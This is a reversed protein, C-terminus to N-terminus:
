YTFSDVVGGATGGIASGAAFYSALVPLSAGTPALALAGLGVALSGISKGLGGSGGGQSAFRNPNAYSDTDYKMPPVMTRPIVDALPIDYPADALPAFQPPLPLKNYLNTKDKYVANSIREVVNEFAPLQDEMMKNLTATDADFQEKSIGLMTAIEAKDNRLQNRQNILKRGQEQIQKGRNKLQKGKKKIQLATNRAAEQNNNLIDISNNVKRKNQVASDRNNAITDLQYNLNEREKGSIRKDSRYKTKAGFVANKFSDNTRELSDVIAGQDISALTEATRIVGEASKGRRGSAAASGTARQTALTSKLLSVRSEAAARSMQNSQETLGVKFDRARQKERINLINRNNKVVESEIDLNSIQNQIIDRERRLSNRQKDFNDIALQQNEYDM